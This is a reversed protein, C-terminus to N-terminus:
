DKFLPEARYQCQMLGPSGNEVIDRYQQATTSLMGVPEGERPLPVVHRLGDRELNFVQGNLEDHFGQAWRARTKANHLYRGLSATNVGTIEGMVQLSTSPPLAKRGTYTM